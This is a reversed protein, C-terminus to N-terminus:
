EFDTEDKKRILLVQNHKLAAAYMCGYPCVHM